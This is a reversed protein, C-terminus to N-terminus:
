RYYIGIYIFIREVICFQIFHLLIFVFLGIPIKKIRKRLELNKNEKEVKISQYAKSKAYM